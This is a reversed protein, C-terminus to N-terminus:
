LKEITKELATDWGMRIYDFTKEFLECNFSTDLPRKAKLDFTSNSVPDITNSLNFKKNFLNIIKELLCYRSISGIDSFHFIKNPVEQSSVISSMMHNIADALSLASTPSGIADIAGNLTQNNKLLIPRVKSLFNYQTPLHSYLWSTRLIIYKDTNEQIAIEGLYRSEGYKNIPNPTDFEDYNGKVGDFVYDSSIHILIKKSEYCHQALEKIALNNVINAEERDESLEVDNYAAFNLIYQNQDNSLISKISSLNKLNLDKSSLINIPYQSIPIYCQGLQSTGGILTILRGV